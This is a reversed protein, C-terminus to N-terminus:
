IWSLGLAQYRCGPAAAGAEPGAEAAAVTTVVALATNFNLAAAAEPYSWLVFKQVIVM